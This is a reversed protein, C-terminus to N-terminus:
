EEEGKNILVIRSVCMGPTVITEPDLNGPEVIEDVEAITIKSAMAILPNFSRSSGRYILNGFTDAKYARVFGFEAKLPFELIYDRGEITRREKGTEYPTDLGVPCYFGGIGAGGARIREALTGQPVIEVEVRGERYCRELHSEVGVISTGAWCTIAKKVQGNEFLMGPTAYSQGLNYASLDSSELKKALGYIEGKSAEHYRLLGVGSLQGLNCGIITLDKAGQDRLAQILNQAIGGPGSFSHMMITSGDPIDAVAERFTKVVKNKM